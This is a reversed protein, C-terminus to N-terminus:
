KSFNWYYQFMVRSESRANAQVLSHIYKPSHKLCPICSAPRVSRDIKRFASVSRNSDALSTVDVLAPRMANQKNLQSNHSVPRTAVSQIDASDRCKRLERWETGAGTIPTGVLDEGESM